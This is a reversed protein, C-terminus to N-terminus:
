DASEAVEQDRSEIHVVFDGAALELAAGSASHAASNLSYFIEKGRRRGVVLNNMRLLGLHHSVTPQPIDLEVCLSTVNREGGILLRLLSLRTRDGLLRFLSALQDLDKDTSQMMPPM